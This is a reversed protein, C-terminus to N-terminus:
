SLIGFTRCITREVVGGGKWRGKEMTLAMLRTLVL